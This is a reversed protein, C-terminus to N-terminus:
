LISSSLSKLFFNPKKGECEQPLNLPVWFIHLSKALPRWKARPGQSGQDDSKRLRKGRSSGQSVGEAEGDAPGMIGLGASSRHSETLLSFDLLPYPNTRRTLLNVFTKEMRLFNPYSGNICASIIKAFNLWDLTGPYIFLPLPSIVSM